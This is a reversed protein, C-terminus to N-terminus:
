YRPRRQANARNLILETPEGGAVELPVNWYLEDYILEYRAYVWWQGKPLSTRAIGNMDTTDFVEERGAEEIRAAIIDDVDAFAEDGWQDRLLSYEQAQATYRRQLGDYLAFSSDMQRQAAAEAAEQPQFDRYLLRYEASSRPLQDLRASLARLSDRASNWRETAASWTVQAEAIAAQLELLSDPAAPEPRSAVSQLSDFVVDRDYPLYRIELQNLTTTEGTDADELQALVVAEGSCGVTVAAAFAAALVRARM